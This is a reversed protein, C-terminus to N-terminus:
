MLARINLRFVFSMSESFIASVITAFLILFNKSSPSINELYNKSNKKEFSLDNLLEEAIQQESKLNLGKNFINRRFRFCNQENKLQISSQRGSFLTVPEKKLGPLNGRFQIVPVFAGSHEMRSM